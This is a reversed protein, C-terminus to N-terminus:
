LQFFMTKGKPPQYLDNIRTYDALATLVNMHLKDINWPMDFSCQGNQIFKSGNLTTFFQSRVFRDIPLLEYVVPHPNTMTGLTITSELQGGTNKIVDISNFNQTNLRVVSNYRQYSQSSVRM